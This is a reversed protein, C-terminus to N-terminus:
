ANFDAPVYVSGTYVECKNKCVKLIEQYCDQLSLGTIMSLKTATVNAGLFFAIQKLMKTAEVQITRIAQKLCRSWSYNKAAKISHALHNIASTFRNM